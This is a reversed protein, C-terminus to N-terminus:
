SFDTIIQMGGVGSGQMTVLHEIGTELDCRGAIMKTIDVEHREIFEFVDPLRASQIGHSGMFNIEEAIFRSVPLGIQGETILGVQVHRGGRRLSALAAHCSTKSGYADVSAHAGNRVHSWVFEKVAEPRVDNTVAAAGLNTAAKLAAPKPDAVLVTVGLAVAIQVCSLGVGGAGVVALVEGGSLKLRDVLARFATSFRCGLSAAMEFTFSLPLEVVNFDAYGIRVYQAFSGWHTFGPQFQDPCIQPNGETCFGCVGCGGVFPVTVRMGKRFLKVDQGTAVVVGSFEHGPVHPLHIDPDHGQWGHWDSLCIGTAKIEVVVDGSGPSPDPVSKLVPRAGFRDYYVAKM